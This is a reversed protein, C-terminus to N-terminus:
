RSTVGTTPGPSPQELRASQRPGDETSNGAPTGAWYTLTEAPALGELLAFLACTALRPLRRIM